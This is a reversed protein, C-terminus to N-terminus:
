HCTGCEYVGTHHCSKCENEANDIATAGDHATHCEVCTIEAHSSSSDPLAHPNAVNGESDTLATSDATAESLIKSDHCTLCVEDAVDTKKLRTAKKGSNLRKHGRELDENDVHCTICDVERNNYHDSAYTDVSKALEAPGSEVTNSETSVSSRNKDESNDRIDSNIQNLSEFEAQHCETCDLDISWTYDTDENSEVESAMASGPTQLLLAMAISAMFVTVTSLLSYCKIRVM